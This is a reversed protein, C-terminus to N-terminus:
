PKMTNASHRVRVDSSTSLIASISIPQPLSKERKSLPKFRILRKRYQGQEYLLNAADFAETDNATTRMGCGFVGLLLVILIWHDFTHFRAPFM